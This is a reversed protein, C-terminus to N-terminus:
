KENAGFFGSPCVAVAASSAAASFGKCCYEEEILGAETDSGVIDKDVAVASLVFM